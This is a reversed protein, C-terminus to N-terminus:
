LTKEGKRKVTKLCRYGATVEEKRDAMKQRKRYRFILMIALRKRYRINSRDIKM